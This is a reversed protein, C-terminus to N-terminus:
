REESKETLLERPNRYNLTLKQHKQNINFEDLVNEM